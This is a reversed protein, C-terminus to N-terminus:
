RPSKALPPKILMAPPQQPLVGSCIAAMALASSPLGGRSIAAREAEDAGDERVGSILVSFSGSRGSRSDPECGNVWCIPTYM